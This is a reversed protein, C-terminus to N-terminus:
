DFEPSKGAEENVHNVFDPNRILFDRIIYNVFNVSPIGTVVKAKKFFSDYERAIETLKKAGRTAPRQWDRVEDLNFAFDARTKTKKEKRVPAVLEKEEANIKEEKQTEEAAVAPIGISKPVTEAATEQSAKLKAALDKMNSKSM